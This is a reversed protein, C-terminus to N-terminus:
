MPDHCFDTEALSDIELSSGTQRSHLPPWTGRLFSRSLFGLIEAALRKELEEGSPGIYGKILTVLQVSYSLFYDSKGPDIPYQNQISM